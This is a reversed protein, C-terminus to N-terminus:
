SRNLMNRVPWMALEAPYAPREISVCCPVNAWKRKLSM